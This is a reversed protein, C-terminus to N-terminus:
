QGGSLKPDPTFKPDNPNDAKVIVPAAEGVDKTMLTGLAVVVSLAVVIVVATLVPSIKKKM